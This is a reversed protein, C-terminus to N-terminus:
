ADLRRGLVATDAVEYGLHRYFGTAGANDTRVMLQAKPAGARRLWEEAGAMIRRGLGTGRVADAVAVYYLWGRHGDHGVMATAVLAQGDLIGLVASTPGGVARDFDTVPDNWPRTLGASRWLAVVADRWSPDLEEVRHGAGDAV